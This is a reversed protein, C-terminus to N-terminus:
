QGQDERETEHIYRLVNESFGDIHTWKPGYGIGNKYSAVNILYNHKGFPKAMAPSDAHGHSCDAEDTIVIIREASKEKEQVYDIVQKLFIGGAGITGTM